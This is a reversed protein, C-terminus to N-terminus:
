SLGAGTPAAPPEAFQLWWPCEPVAPPLPAQRRNGNLLLAQEDIEARLLEFMSEAALEHARENPHQDTAYVWLDKAPIGAYVPLLDLVTFGEREALARVTRHAEKFPYREMELRYLWPFIALFARVGDEDNARHMRGFGREISGYGPHGEQHAERTTKVLDRHNQFRNLPAVALDLLRWRRREQQLWEGGVQRNWNFYSVQETNVDNLFYWVVLIDPRFHRVVHDYLAAEHESGYGALCFNYVEYGAGPPAAADFRRQLLNALTDEGRVGNGWCFSDGLLAIRIKDNRELSFAEDRFGYGNLVYTIGKTEVDFYGRPNSPWVQAFSAHAPYLYPVGPLAAQVKQRGLYNVYPLQNEYGSVRLGWEILLTTTVTSVLLLALNTFVGKVNM